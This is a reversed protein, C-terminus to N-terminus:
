KEGQAAAPNTTHAFHPYYFAAAPICVYRNKEESHAFAFARYRVNLLQRKGHPYRILRCVKVQVSHSTAMVAHQM